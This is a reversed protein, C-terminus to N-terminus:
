NNILLDVDQASLTRNYIFIDDIAGDLYNASGWGGIHLITNTWLNDENMTTENVVVGNVYTTWKLNPDKTITVHSWQNKPLLIEDYVQLTTTTTSSYFLKLEVNNADFSTTELFLNQAAATGKGIIFGDNKPNVWLGISFASNNQIGNSPFNINSITNEFDYANGFVGTIINPLDGNQFTADIGNISSDSCIDNITNDNRYHAVLEQESPRIDTLNVTIQVTSSQSGNSITVDSTITTNLEYDFASVNNVFLEGSAESIRIANVNSQNNLIFTLDLNQTDTALVSGISQNPLPNEVITFMQNEAIPPDIPILTDDDNSCGILLAYILILAISHELNLENSFNIIKM